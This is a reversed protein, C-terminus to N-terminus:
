SINEMLLLVLNAFILIASISLVWMGATTYFFVMGDPMLSKYVVFDIVYVGILWKFTNNAYIVAIRRTFQVDQKSSLTGYFNDITKYLDNGSKLQKKLIVAFLRLTKDDLDRALDYLAESVPIDHFSSYKLILSKLPDNCGSAGATVIERQTSYIAAAELCSQIYKNVNISIGKSQRNKKNSFYFFPIFLSIFGMLLSFIFVKLFFFSLIFVSIGSVLSCGYFISPSLRSEALSLLRSIYFNIQSVYRNNKAARSLISKSSYFKGTALPASSLKPAFILGIILSGSILATLLLLWMIM